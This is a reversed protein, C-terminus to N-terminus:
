VGASAALAAFNPVGEIQMVRWFEAADVDSGIHRIDNGAAFVIADFPSLDAETFTGLAYDGILLPFAAMPTAPAAPKRAALTVDNGRSKLFTAAYGGLM